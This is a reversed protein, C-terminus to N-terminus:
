ELDIRRARVEPCGGGYGQSKEETRAPLYRTRKAVSCNRGGLLRIVVARPRGVRSVAVGQKRRQHAAGPWHSLRADPCRAARNKLSDRHEEFLVRAQKRVEQTPAPHLVELLEDTTTGTLLATAIAATLGDDPHRSAGGAVRRYGQDLMFSPNDHEDPKPDPPTELYGYEEGPEPAELLPKAYSVVFRKGQPHVKRLPLREVFVTLKEIADQFISIANAAPPLDTVPGLGRAKGGAAMEPPKRELVAQAKHPPLLGSFGWAALQQHMADPSGFGARIAIEDETGIEKLRSLFVL